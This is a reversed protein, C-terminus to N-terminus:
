CVVSALPLDYLASHDNDIVQWAVPYTLGGANKVIESSVGNICWALNAFRYNNEFDPFTGKQLSSDFV